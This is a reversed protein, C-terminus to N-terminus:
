VAISKIKNIKDFKRDLFINADDFMLHILKIVERKRRIQLKYSKRDTHYSAFIGFDDKLRKIIYEFMYANNGAISIQPYENGRIHRIIYSGDGDIYGRLFHLFLKKDNIKPFINSKTKNQVINNSILGDYISKSYIRISCMESYKNREVNDNFRDIQNLSKMKKTIKYYDNFIHNLKYLHEIDLVSLEIGLEHNKATKIVYGDAYIFGLWYAKEETDICDFFHQDGRDKCSVNMTLGLQRKKYDISAESRGFIEGLEKNSYNMYIEKLSKEECSKWRM